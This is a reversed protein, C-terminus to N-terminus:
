RRPSIEGQAIAVQRGDGLALVLRGQDDVDVLTGEMTSGSGLLDVTVVSGRGHLRRRLEALWSDDAAIGKLRSMICELLPFLPVETGRAQHLSCSTGSLEPHFSEQRCNVGFGVLAADGRAECLLGALKKGDLMVDNPWKLRLTVGAADEIGRCLAVGARLPLEALPYGLDPVRIVVTAMLSEWPPSVWRRGPVRGRGRTQFGAVVATGTPAGERALAAADDMTSGTSELVRVPAGPWPNTIGPGPDAADARTEM